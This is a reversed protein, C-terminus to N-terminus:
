KCMLLGFPVKLLSMMCEAEHISLPAKKAHHLQNIQIYIIENNMKFQTCIKRSM